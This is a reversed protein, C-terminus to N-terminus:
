KREGLIKVDQGLTDQVYIMQVLIIIVIMLPTALLLGFAGLIVGILIQVSILLAPPLYVARKQILPTIFYSEITQISVYLIIVYLAKSPSDMLAVLAAPVVSIIPGINPVFSLVAAIIGLTLALPVGLIWLGITTLIGLILMSSFQGAMWWILSNELAEIVEAARKQKKKPILKLFNETYLKPDFAGYLGIVLVVVVGVIGSVASSFIGTIKSTIQPDNFFDSSSKKINEVISEGWPLKKAESELKTLSSPIQKTLNDIGEILNPGIILGFGSIIIIIGLIAFILSINESVPIFKQIIRSLARLLVALLVGAFILLLIDAVIGLLLLLSLFLASVSIFILAKKPFSLNNAAM